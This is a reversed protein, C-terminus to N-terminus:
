YVVVIFNIQASTPKMATSYEDTCSGLFKMGGCTCLLQEGHQKFLVTEKQYRFERADRESLFNILDVFLRFCVNDLPLVETLIVSTLRDLFGNLNNENLIINANVYTNYMSDYQLTEDADSTDSGAEPEPGPTFM